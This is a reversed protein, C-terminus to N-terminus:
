RNAVRFGREEAVAVLEARKRLGVASAIYIIHRSPDLKELDKVSSVVVPELGSPHLGRIDEPTGYGSKVKPPYGKIELRVKNDKGKPKRWSDRREFKWYRYHHYHVFDPKEKKKIEEQRRRLERLAELRSRGEPSGSEGM